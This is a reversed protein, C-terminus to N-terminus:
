REGEEVVLEGRWGSIAGFDVVRAFGLEDLTKKAM